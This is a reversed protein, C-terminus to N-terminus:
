LLKENLNELRERKDKSEMKTCALTKGNDQVKHEKKEKNHNVFMAFM